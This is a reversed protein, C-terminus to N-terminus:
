NNRNAGDKATSALITYTERWAEKIDPTFAEGLGQELTWLLAEGVIAYHEDKVGYGTHRKGLNQVVPVLEELRNLGKVAITLTQMLMRGQTTMDHKFLDKLSPDLEFLRQYFLAAATDAIPVVKEFSTQVLTKQTDSLAM